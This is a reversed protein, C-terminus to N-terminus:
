CWLRPYISVHLMNCCTICCSSLLPLHILYYPFYGLDRKQVDKSSTCAMWSDVGVRPHQLVITSSQVLFESLILCPSLSLSHTHM